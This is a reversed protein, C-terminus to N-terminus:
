RLIIVHVPLADGSLIEDRSPYTSRWLVAPHFRYILSNLQLASTKNVDAWIGGVHPKGLIALHPSSRLFSRHSLSVRSYSSKSITRSAIPLPPCALLVQVSLLSEVMLSRFPAV